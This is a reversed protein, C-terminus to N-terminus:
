ILWEYVLGVKCGLLKAALAFKFKSDHLGERMEKNSSLNHLAGRANHYTNNVSLM